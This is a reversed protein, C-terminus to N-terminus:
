DGHTPMIWTDWARHRPTTLSILSQQTKIALVILQQKVREVTSDRHGALIDQPLVHPSQWLDYAAQTSAADRSAQPVSSEPRAALDEVLHVLRRNRRVDGMDTTQLETAAWSSM